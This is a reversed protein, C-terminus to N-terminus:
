RKPAFAAALTASDYSPVPLAVAYRYLATQYVGSLAAMVITVALMGVVAVGIMAVGLVASTQFLLVGSVGLLLAPIAAVVGVLGIGGQGIVNEGWTSRVADKSRRLAEGVGVGEVVIMPLVLFTVASWAFGIVGGVIRGLLGGREQIQRIVMSVTASVLSWQVILGIRSAAAGLASGLTPDEGDFRQNAGAVLAANFFIVLFASVFYFLAGLVYTLATPNMQTTTNGFADVTSTEDITFWAPVLFTAAVVAWTIASVIPLVLLERDARLVGWSAKTLMWSGQFRSM